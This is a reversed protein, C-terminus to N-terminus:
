DSQGDPEVKLLHTGSMHRLPGGDRTSVVDHWNTRGILVGRGAGYGPIDWEVTDGPKPFDWPMRDVVTGSASIRGAM